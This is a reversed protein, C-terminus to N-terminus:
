EAELIRGDSSVVLEHLKGRKNKGSLEYDGSPTKWAAGFTVDPFQRKAADLVAPPVDATAVPANPVVKPGGCGAVLLVIAATAARTAGNIGRVLVALTFTEMM